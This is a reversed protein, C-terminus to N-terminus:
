ACAEVIDKRVHWQAFAIESESIAAICLLLVIEDGVDTMTKTDREITTDSWSALLSVCKALIHQHFIFALICGASARDDLHCIHSTSASSPEYGSREVRVVGIDREQGHTLSDCVVWVSNSSQMTDLYVM